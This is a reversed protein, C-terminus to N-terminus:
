AQRRRKKIFDTVAAIKKRLFGAAMKREIRTLGLGFIFIGSLLTSAVATLLLRGASEAFFGQLYRVPFYVAFFVAAGRLAVDFLYRAPSLRIYKKAFFLRVPLATVAMALCVLYGSSPLNGRTYLLYIVPLVLLTIGAMSLQYGRIKGVALVAYFLTGSALSEVLLVWLSLETFATTWPPVTGLWLRLLFNSEALVPLILLNVLYISMKSTSIVLPPLEGTKGEAYLKAMRPSVTQIFNMSFSSIAVVVQSAIGFATNLLPGFFLNIIINWGQTRLLLSCHGISQWITIGSLSYYYARHARRTPKVHSFIKTVTFFFMGFTLVAVAFNLAGYLILMRGTPHWTVLLWVLLTRLATEAFGLYAYLSMKEYAILIATFPVQMITFVLSFVAFQYVGNAAAMSEAPISLKTNVFWLGVSEAALLALLSIGGHLVLATGFLKRLRLLNGRGIAEAFYRQSSAAMGSNLFGLMLVFGAVVNYVGYDIEGLERLVVRSIYLTAAMILLLRFYLFMTNVLIIRTHSPKNM